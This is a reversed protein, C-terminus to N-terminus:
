VEKWETRGLKLIDAQEVTWIGEKRKGEVCQVAASVAAKGIVGADQAWWDTLGTSIAGLGKAIGRLLAEPLRSNERTGLLLGPRIIVTYAFGLDKVAAELEGKMKSYPLRSQASTGASSVLVYVKIGGAKAAKALALNLDYDIKRQAEFSGAQGRTTGLASIFVDPTPALKQLIDPWKSSDKELM